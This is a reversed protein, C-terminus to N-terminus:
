IKFWIKVKYNRIIKKRVTKSVLSHFIIFACCHIHKVSYSSHGTINNQLIWVTPRPPMFCLVTTIPQGWPQFSSWVSFFHFTKRPWYQYTQKRKDSKGHRVGLTPCLTLSNRLHLKRKVLASLQHFFSLKEIKWYTLSYIPRGLLFRAM